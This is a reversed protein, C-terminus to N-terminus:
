KSFLPSPISKPKVTLIFVPMLFCAFSLAPTLLSSVIKHLLSFFIWESSSVYSNHSIHFRKSPIQIIAPNTNYGTNSEKLLSAFVRPLFLYFLSDDIM